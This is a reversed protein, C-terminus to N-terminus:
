SSYYEDVEQAAQRLEVVKKEVFFAFIYATKENINPKGGSKVSQFFKELEGLPYELLEYVYKINNDTELWLGRKALAERFSKLVQEIQQLCAKGLPADRVYTDGLFQKLNLCYDLTDPFISALKEM